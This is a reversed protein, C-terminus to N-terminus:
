LIVIEDGPEFGGVEYEMDEWARHSSVSPSGDVIRSHRFHFPYRRDYEEQSLEVPSGCWASSVGPLVQFSM